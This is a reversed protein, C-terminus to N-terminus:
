GNQVICREKERHRPIQSSKFLWLLNLAVRKRLSFFFLFFFLLSFTLKVDTVM